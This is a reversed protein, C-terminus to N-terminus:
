QFLSVDIVQGAQRRRQCQPCLALSGSYNCRRKGVAIWEAPADEDGWFGVSFVFKSGLPWGEIEAAAQNWTRFVIRSGNPLVLLEETFGGALTYKVKYVGKPDGKGNLRKVAAPLYKWILAQQTARSSAQTESGCVITCERAMASEVTLFACLESKAARNGGLLILLHTAAADPFRDWAAPDTVAARLPAGFTQVYPAAAWGAAIQARTAATRPVLGAAYRAELWHPLEFHFYFPDSELPQAQNWDQGRLRRRHEVLWAVYRQSGDPQRLLGAIEADTLVPAVPHWPARPLTDPLATM